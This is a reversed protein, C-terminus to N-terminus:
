VHICRSRPAGRQKKLWLKVCIGLSQHQQLSCSPSVYWVYSILYNSFVLCSFTIPKAYEIYMAAFLFLISAFSCSLRFALTGGRHVSNQTACDPRVISALTKVYPLHKTYVSLLKFLVRGWLRLITSSLQQAKFDSQAIRRAKTQRKISVLGLSYCPTSGKWDRVVCLTGHHQKIFYQYSVYQWNKELPSFSGSVAPHCVCLLAEELLLDLLRSRPYTQQSYYRLLRITNM